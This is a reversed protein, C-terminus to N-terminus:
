GYHDIFGGEAKWEVGAGQGSPIILIVSILGKRNASVQLQVAQELLTKAGVDENANKDRTRFCAGKEVGSSELRGPAGSYNPGLQGELTRKVGRSVTMFHALFSPQVKFSVNKLGIKGSRKM